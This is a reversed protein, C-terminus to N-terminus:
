LMDRISALVSRLIEERELGQAISLLDFANEPQREEMAQLVYDVRLINSALWTTLDYANDDPEIDIEDIDKAKSIARLADVIFAYKYDDPRADGHAALCMNLLSEDDTAWYSRGNKRKKQYFKALVESAKEQATMM